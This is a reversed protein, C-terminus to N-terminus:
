AVPLYLDLEFDRENDGPVFHEELWQHTAAHYASQEVWTVLMQWANPIDSGPDNVKCHAVAYRGGPFDKIKIEDDAQVEPGVTIWFEYGYNPSGASPSPNNFGFIRHDPQKLLGNASAWTKLKQWAESEPSSSFAAASAVHLPPLNVIRVDLQSM